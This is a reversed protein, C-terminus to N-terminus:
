SFPNDFLFTKLRKKFNETTTIGAALSGIYMATWQQRDHM